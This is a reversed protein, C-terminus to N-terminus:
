LGWSIRNPDNRMLSENYSEIFAFALDEALMNKIARLFKSNWKNLEMIQYEACALLYFTQMKEKETLEYSSLVPREVKDSTYGQLKIKTKYRENYAKYNLEHLKNVEKCVYEKITDFNRNGLDKKIEPLENCYRKELLYYTIKEKLYEFNKNSMIFCSM